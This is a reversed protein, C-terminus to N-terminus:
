CVWSPPSEAFASVCVGVACDLTQGRFLEGGDDAEQFSQEIREVKNQGGGLDVVLGDGLFFAAVDFGGALPEVVGLADEKFLDNGFEAEGHLFDRVVLVRRSVDDKRFAGFGIQGRSSRAM